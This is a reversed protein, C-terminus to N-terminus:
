PSPTKNDASFRDLDTLTSTRINRILFIVFWIGIAVYGGLLLAAPIIGLNNMAFKASVFVSGIFYVLFLLYFAYSLFKDVNRFDRSHQTELWQEWGVINELNPEIQTRIYRGCRMLANNESLYILAVVVVLVPLSLTITDINYSQALFQSGPVVVLGIGMTQFIKSKTDKIEERLTLYQQKMFEQKDM